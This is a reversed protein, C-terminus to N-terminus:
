AWGKLFGIAVRGNRVHRDFVAVKLLDEHMNAELGGAHTNVTMFREATIRQNIPEMVRIKVSSSRSPDKCLSSNAYGEM